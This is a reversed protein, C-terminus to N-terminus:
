AALNHTSNIDPDAFLAKVIDQCDDFSGEVTLNHVNADLVTTMQAQQIPSVKGTPFMM